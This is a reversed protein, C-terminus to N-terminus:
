DPSGPSGVIYLLGNCDNFIIPNLATSKEGGQNRFSLLTGGSRAPAEVVEVWGMLSGAVQLSLTRRAQLTQEDLPPTCSMAPGEASFGLLKGDVILVDIRLLYPVPRAVQASGKKLDDTTLCAERRPKEVLVRYSIPAEGPRFPETSIRLRVNKLGLPKCYLQDAVRAALSLTDSPQVQGMAVPAPALLVLSLLVWSIKVDGEWGASVGYWSALLELSFFGVLRDQRGRGLDLPGVPAGVARGTVSCFM